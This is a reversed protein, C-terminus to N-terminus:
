VWFISVLASAAKEPHKASSNRCCMSASTTWAVMNKGVRKAGNLGPTSIADGCLKYRSMHLTPPARVPNPGDKDESSRVPGKGEETEEVEVYDEFDFSLFYKEM